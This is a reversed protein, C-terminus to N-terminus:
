ENTYRGVIGLERVITSCHILALEKKEHVYDASYHWIPVGNRRIKPIARESYGLLYYLRLVLADGPETLKSIVAEADATTTSLVEIQRKIEDLLETHREIHSILAEQGDNLAAKGMVMDMGSHLILQSDYEEMLAPLNRIANRAGEFLCKAATYAVADFEM